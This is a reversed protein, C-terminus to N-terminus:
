PESWRSGLRQRKPKARPARPAAEPPPGDGLYILTKLDPYGEALAPVLGASADDVCLITTASDRLAYVLEAPNWRTNVPTFVGGAWPVALLLEAYRDSNLAQPRGVSRQARGGIVRDSIETAQHYRLSFPLRYRSVIRLLEHSVESHTQTGQLNLIGFLFPHAM